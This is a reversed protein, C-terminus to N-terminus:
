PSLRALEALTDNAYIRVAADPDKALARLRPIAGLAGRGFRRLAFASYSRIGSSQAELAETLAAVIAEDAQTERAFRGLEAAASTGCNVYGEVAINKRLVCILKPVLYDAVDRFEAIAQVAASFTAPDEAELIEMLASKAQGASATGPAIRGLAHIAQSILNESSPQTLSAPRKEKAVAILIPVARQSEGGFEELLSIAVTRVRRDRSRLAYTLVTVSKSTVAPPRVRAMAKECADRVPPEDHEMMRFIPALWPDLGRSFSFLAVVATARNKPSEDKLSAAVEAPPETPVVLAVVSLVRLAGLRHETDGHKLRDILDSLVATLDVREAVGPAAMIYGLSNVASDRVITEPDTLCGLLSMLAARPSDNNSNSAVAVIGIQGLASAATSRVKADPDRLAAVLPPISTEPNTVGSTQLEVIADVRESPYSSRMARIADKAPQNERVVVSVTFWLVGVCAIAAILVRIASWPRGELVKSRVRDIIGKSGM